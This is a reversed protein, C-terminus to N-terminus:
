MRQGQNKWRQEGQSVNPIQPISTNEVRAKTSMQRTTKGKACRLDPGWIFEANKIDQVTVPCNLIM